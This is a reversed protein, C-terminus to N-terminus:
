FPPEDTLDDSLAAGRPPTETNDGPPPLGADLQKRFESVVDAKTRDLSSLAPAANSGPAPGPDNLAAVSADSRDEDKQPVAASFSSGTPAARNTRLGLIECAQGNAMLNPIDTLDPLIEIDVEKVCEGAADLMQESWSSIRKVFEARLDVV